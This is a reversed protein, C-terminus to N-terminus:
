VDSSRPLNAGPLVRLSASRIGPGDHKHGCTGAGPGAGVRTKAGHAVCRSCDGACNSRRRILWRATLWAVAVSLCLLTAGAQWWAQWDPRPPGLDALLFLHHSTPAM